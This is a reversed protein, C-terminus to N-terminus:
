MRPYKDKLHRKTRMKGKYYLDQLKPFAIGFVAFKGELIFFITLSIKSLDSIELRQGPSKSVAKFILLMAFVCRVAKLALIM